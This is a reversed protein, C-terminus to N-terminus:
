LGKYVMWMTMCNTFNIVDVHQQFANLVCCGYNSM